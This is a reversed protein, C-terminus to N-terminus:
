LLFLFLVGGLSLLTLHNECCINRPINREYFLHFFFLVFANM